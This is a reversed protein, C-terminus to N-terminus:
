ARRLAAGLAARSPLPIERRAPTSPGRAATRGTRPHGDEGPDDEGPDDRRDPATRDAPTSPFHHQGHNEPALPLTM